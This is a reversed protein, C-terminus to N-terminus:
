PLPMDQPEIFTSLDITHTAPLTSYDFEAEPGLDELRFRYRITGDVADHADLEIIRGLEDRVPETFTMSIPSYIDYTATLPVGEADYTADVVSGGRTRNGMADYRYERQELIASPIGDDPNTDHAFQTWLVLRGQADFQRVVFEGNAQTTTSTNAVDDYTRELEVWTDVGDSRHVEIWRGQDDFVRSESTFGRSQLDHPDVDDYTLTTHADNGLEWTSYTNLQAWQWEDSYYDQERFWSHEEVVHGDDDLMAQYYEDSYGTNSRFEVVESSALDYVTRETTGSSIYWRDTGEPGGANYWPETNHRLDAQSEGRIHRYRLPRYASTPTTPVKTSPTLIPAYGEPAIVYTQLRNYPISSTDLRVFLRLHYVHDPPPPPEPTPQPEPTPEPEPTPAPPTPEETPAVDTVPIATCALLLVHLVAGGETHM